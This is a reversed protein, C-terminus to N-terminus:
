VGEKEMDEWGFLGKGGIAGGGGGGGGDGGGAGEELAFAAGGHLLGLV